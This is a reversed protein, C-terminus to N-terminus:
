VNLYLNDNLDSPAHRQIMWITHFLGGDKIAWESGLRCDVESQVMESIEEPTPIDPMGAKRRAEIDALAVELSQTAILGSLGNRSSPAFSHLEQAADLQAAPSANDLVIRYFGLRRDVNYQAEALLQAGTTIRDIDLDHYCCIISSSESAPVEARWIRWTFGLNAWGPYTVTYGDQDNGSILDWRDQNIVLYDPGGDAPTVVTPAFPLQQHEADEVVSYWPYSFSVPPRVLLARGGSILRKFLSSKSLIANPQGGVISMVNAYRAVDDPNSFGHVPACLSTM